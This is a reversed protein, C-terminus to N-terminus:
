LKEFWRRMKRRCRHTEMTSRKISLPRKPFGDPTIHDTFSSPTLRPTLNTQIPTMNVMMTEQERSTTTGGGANNEEEGGEEKRGGEEERGTAPAV